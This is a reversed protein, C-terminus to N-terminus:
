WAHKLTSRARAFGLGLRILGYWSSPSLVVESLLAHVPLRGLSDVAALVRTPVPTAPADSIARIAAFPVRSERAVRAVSASEMDAAVAGTRKGLERKGQETDLVHGPDALAGGAAALTERLSESWQPDPLTRAGDTGILSEPVLLAGPPLGDVLAAATGWSLLADAGAELLRRAGAEARGAGMGTLITQTHADIRVPEGARSGGPLITSIEAALAVVVGLREAIPM